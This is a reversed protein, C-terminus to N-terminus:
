TSELVFKVSTYLLNDLKFKIVWYDWSCTSSLLTHVVLLHKCSTVHIYMSLPTQLSVTCSQLNIGRSTVQSGLMPPVINPLPAPHYLFLSRTHASLITTECLGKPAALASLLVRPICRAKFKKYESLQLGLHLHIWLLNVKVKSMVASERHSEPSLLSSM